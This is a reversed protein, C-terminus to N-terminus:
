LGTQNVGYEAQEATFGEFRLQDILGSRSFSTFDLYNQASKAAQENWDVTVRDVGWTAEDTSYGEFELQDILGSRSFASFDLYNAASNLAQERWDVTLRDVAWTADDTSFGEFELQNILGSRSFATFDLYREASSLANRQAVSGSTADEGATSSEAAEEAARQEEEAARQEEEEAARQAEEKAEAEEAEAAEAAARKAQAEEIAAAEDAAAQEATDASAQEDAAEVGAEESAVAVPTPTGDVPEGTSGAIAAIVAVLVVAIAGTPILIRKQAYWPLQNDPPHGPSPNGPPQSEPQCETVVPEEDFTCRGRGRTQTFRDRFDASDARPFERGPRWRGAVVPAELPQRFAPGRLTTVTGSGPGMLRIDTSPPVIETDGLPESIGCICRRLGKCISCVNSLM